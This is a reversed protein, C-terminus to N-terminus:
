EEQYTEHNIDWIWYREERGGWNTFTQVTQGIDHCEEVNDLIEKCQVEEDIFHRNNNRQKTKSWYCGEITCNQM